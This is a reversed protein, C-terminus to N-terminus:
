AEVKNMAELKEWARRTWEADAIASHQRAKDKKLLRPNGLSVALQKIDMVHTPMWAPLDVM